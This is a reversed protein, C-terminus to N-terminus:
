IKERNQLIRQLSQLIRDNQAPKMISIRLSQPCDPENFVRVLIGEKRLAAAVDVANRDQLQILLFNTSSPLVIIESLRCFANYMRERESIIKGIVEEYYPIDELCAAAAAQAANNVNYPPKIKMMETMVWKPLIGYGVRLGALGAWKSFTRLVILNDAAAVLPICSKSRGFDAADASFELYAEDVVIMIPLDLLAEIQVRPMLLGDPNNPTTLFVLKCEAHSAAARLAPIDVSRDPLRPIELVRARNLHAYQQYMSFTPPLNIISDGPELFLRSILDILEDAGNSVMIQDAPVHFFNALKACLNVATPDPYLHPQCATLLAQLAKPSAGYPNENADAKIIEVLPLGLEQAINEVPVAPCYPEISAIHKAVNM